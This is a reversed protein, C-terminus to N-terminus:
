LFNKVAIKHLFNKLQHQSLRNYGKQYLNEINSDIQDSVYRVFKSIIVSIEKLM